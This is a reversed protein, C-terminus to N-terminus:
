RGEDRREANGSHQHGHESQGASAQGATDPAPEQAATAGAFVSLSAALTMVAITKFRMTKGGAPAAVSIGSEAEDGARMRDRIPHLYVGQRGAGSDEACVTAVGTM